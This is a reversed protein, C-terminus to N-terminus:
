FFYFIELNMIVWRRVLNPIQCCNNVFKFHYRFSVQETVFFFTNLSFVSLFFLYISLFIDSRISVYELGKCECFLSTLAARIIQFVHWNLVEWNPKLLESPSSYWEVSLISVAFIETTFLILVTRCSWNRSSLYSTLWLPCWSPPSKAAQSFSVLSKQPIGWITAEFPIFRLYKLQKSADRTRVALFVFATRVLPSSPCCRLETWELM